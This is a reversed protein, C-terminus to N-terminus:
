LQDVFIIANNCYYKLKLSTSIYRFIIKHFFQNISM